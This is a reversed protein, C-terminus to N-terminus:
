PRQLIIWARVVQILWADKGIKFAQYTFQDSIPIGDLGKSADNWTPTYRQGHVVVDGVFTPKDRGVLMISSGSRSGKSFHMGPAQFKSISWQSSNWWEINYIWTLAPIQFGFCCRSFFNSAGQHGIDDVLYKRCSLKLLKAIVTIM